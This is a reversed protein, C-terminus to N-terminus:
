DINLIIRRRGAAAPTYTITLKPRKSTDTTYDSSRWSYDDTGTGVLIFYVKNSYNSDAMQTQVGSTVDWNDWDNVAPVETDEATALRDYGSGDSTNYTASDNANDAGATGWELTTANWDNWTADAVFPKVLQYATVAGTGADYYCYAELIASSITTGSIATLDFSIITRYNGPPYTKINTEAERNVDAASSRIDMDVCGSYAGTPQVGQQVVLTDCYTNGCFLFLLIFTLLLRKM